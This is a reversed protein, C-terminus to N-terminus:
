DARLTVLPHGFAHRGAASLPCVGTRRARGARPARCSAAPATRGDGAGLLAMAEAAGAHHDALPGVYLVADFQEEMPARWEPPIDKGGPGLYEAINTQGLVHRARADPEPGGVRRCGGAHEVDRGGREDLHYISQGAVGGAPHRPFAPRSEPLLPRRRVAGPGPPKQCLSGPRLLDLGFRDRNSLPEAEWRRLDDATRIREWEIPPEGLLVRLRREPPLSANVRRVTTMLESPELSAVHQQTTDLWVRQLAEAAVPEGRVFRDVTERTDPIGRRSSSTTSSWRSDLTASSPSSFRKARRTEMRTASRSSSISASRMSFPRRPMSRCPLFVTRRKDRRPRGGVDAAAHRASRTAEADQAESLGGAHSRCAARRPAAALGM